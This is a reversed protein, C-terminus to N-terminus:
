YLEDVEFPVHALEYSVKFHKAASVVQGYGPFGDAPSASLPPGFATNLAEQLRPHAPVSWSLDDNLNAEYHPFRLKGIIL